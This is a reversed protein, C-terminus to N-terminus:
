IEPQLVELHILSSSSCAQHHILCRLKSSHQRFTECAPGNRNTQKHTHTHTHCCLGYYCNVKQHVRKLHFQKHGNIRLFFSSAEDSTKAPLLHSCINRGDRSFKLLCIYWFVSFVCACVSLSLSFSLEKM